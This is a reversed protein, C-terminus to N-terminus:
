DLNLFNKYNKNVNVVCLYVQIYVCKFIKFLCLKKEKYRFIIRDLGLVFLDFGCIKIYLM